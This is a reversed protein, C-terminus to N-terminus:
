GAGHLRPLVVGQRELRRPLAELPATHPRAAIEHISGFPLTRNPIGAQNGRHSDTDHARSNGDINRGRVVSPKFRDDGIPVRGLLMDPPRPDDQQSRIVETRLGNHGGRALRLCGNPAPLFPKGLRTDRAQQAVLGSRRALRRDRGAPGGLHDPPRLRRWRVLRGVPRSPRHRLRPARHRSPAACRPRSRAWGWRQRAKLSDFSGAKTSFSCSM